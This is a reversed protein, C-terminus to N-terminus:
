REHPTRLVLIGADDRRTSAARMLCAGIVAPRHELVGPLDTLSWRQNLGDSHMVVASGDPVHETVDRVHPMRHGVIGPQGLLSREGTPGAVRVVVNGVGAYRLVQAHADYEVVSIAAGRTSTLATHIRALATAPSDGQCGELVEAARQSAVAALMGHGLGDAVMALWGRPRAFVATTDGCPGEGSLPRTLAGAWPTGGPDAEPTRADAMEVEVVTGVAPVSYIDFSSSLRMCAGLGIGLTKATSAGDAILATIDRSGPGSDIAMIRLTPARHESVRVALQGGGAHHVLNTALESVVIGVEAIRDEGFRLETAMTAVARRVAAVAGIEDIVWWRDEAAPAFSPAVTM